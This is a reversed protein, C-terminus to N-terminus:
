RLSAASPVLEEILREVAQLAASDLHSVM